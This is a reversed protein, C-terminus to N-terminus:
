NIKAKQNNNQFKKILNKSFTVLKVKGKRASGRSDGVNCFLSKAKASLPGPLTRSVCVTQSRQLACLNGFIRKLSSNLFIIILAYKPLLINEYSEEFRLVTKM